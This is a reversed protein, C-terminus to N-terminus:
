GDSLTTDIILVPGKEKVTSLKKKSSYVSHLVRKERLKHGLRFSDEWDVKILEEVRHLPLRMAPANKDTTM